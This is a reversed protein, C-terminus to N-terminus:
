VEVSQLLSFFFFCSTGERPYFYTAILKRVHEYMSDLYCPWIDFRLIFHCLLLFGEADSSRVALSLRLFYNSRLAVGCQPEKNVMFLASPSEQLHVVSDVTTNEDLVITNMPTNM